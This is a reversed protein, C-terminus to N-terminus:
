EDGLEFFAILDDADFVTEGTNLRYCRLQKDFLTLVGSHTAYPVDTTPRDPDCPVAEWVLDNLMLDIPTKPM